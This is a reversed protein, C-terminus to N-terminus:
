IRDFKIKGTVIEVDAIFKLPINLPECILDAQVIYRIKLEDPHVSKDRSVRLSGKDLRPEYRRLVDIIETDLDSVELEDITRHAIDPFGYNLVSRRVAPFDRLDLTSDLSICNMLMELDRAVEARLTKDTIATRQAQRARVVTRDDSGPKNDIAVRADRRAHAARFVYMLPPSLRNRPGPEAMIIAKGGTGTM